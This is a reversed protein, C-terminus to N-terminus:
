IESFPQLYIPVHQSANSLCQIRKGDMHCKGRYDWPRVWLLGFHSFFTSFNRVKSKVAQIVPFRSVCTWNAIGMRRTVLNDLHFLAALPLVNSASLSHLGGGLGWQKCQQSKQPYNPCNTGFDLWKKKPYVGCSWFIEDFDTWLKQTFMFSSVFLCVLAV